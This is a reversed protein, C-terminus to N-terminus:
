RLKLAHIKCGFGGSFPGAGRCGCPERGNGSCLRAGTDRHQQHLCEGHRCRGFGQGADEGVRWVPELQCFAQIRQELTRAQWAAFTVPCRYAFDM